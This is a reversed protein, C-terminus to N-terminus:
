NARQRPSIRYSCRRAGTLIHNVREVDVDDGLLQRFLALESRCFNLCEAAADCIPCHNEHLWLVDPEDDDTEWVAMYGEQTRLESLRAVKDNLSEAGQLAQRYNTLNAQERRSILRELGSDGFLDHMADILQVTLEGHRDPFRRHGAQTLSWYQAPRGAKEARSENVVLGENQLQLLHKRAGVTTIELQVALQQTSLAGQEKLQLLITERNNM